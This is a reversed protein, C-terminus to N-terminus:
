CMAAILQFLEDAIGGTTGHRQLAELFVGVAVEEVGEGMGPGIAGRANAERRQFEQFFQGSEYGERMDMEHAIATTQRWVTVQAPADDGGRALLPHLFLLGRARRRIPTPCPQQM